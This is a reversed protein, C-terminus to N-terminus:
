RFLTAEVGMGVVILAAEVERLREAREPTNVATETAEQGLLDGLFHLVAGPTFDALIATLHSKAETESV